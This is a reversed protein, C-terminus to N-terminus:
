DTRTIQFWLLTLYCLTDMCSYTQCTLNEHSAVYSVYQRSLHYWIVLSGTTINAYLTHSRQCILAMLQHQRQLLNWSDMWAWRQSRSQCQHRRCLHKRLRISRHRHNHDVPSRQSVPWPIQNPLCMVTRRLLVAFMNQSPLMELVCSYVLLLDCLLFGLLRIISMGILNNIKWVWPIGCNDMNKKNTAHTQNVGWSIYCQHAGPTVKAPPASPTAANAAAKKMHGKKVM